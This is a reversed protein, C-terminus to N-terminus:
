PSGPFPCRSSGDKTKKERLAQALSYEFVRIAMNADETTQEEIIYTRGAVSVAEDPLRKELGTGIQEASLHKVESDPPYDCGFPGNIFRM